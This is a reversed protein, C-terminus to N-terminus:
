SNSRRLTFMKTWGDIFVNRQLGTRTKRMKFGQAKAVEYCREALVADKAVGWGNEYCEGKSFQCGLEAANRYWREAEKMDSEVGYGIEYCEGLARACDKCGEAGRRYLRMGEEVDKGVNVGKMYCTALYYLGKLHGQDVAKRLYSVGLDAKGGEESVYVKGLCYQAEAYGREAARGYWMVAEEVDRAVGVGGYFCDGIQKQTRVDERKGEAEM